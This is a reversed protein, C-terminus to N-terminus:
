AGKAATLARSELERYRSAQREETPDFYGFEETVTAAIIAGMETMSSGEFVGGRYAAYAMGGMEHRYEYRIEVTM